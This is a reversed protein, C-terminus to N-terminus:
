RIKSIKRDTIKKSHDAFHLEIEELTRHETEPMILCMLVMGVGAMVFNFASIGALSLSVELDCYTKTTIFRFLYDLCASFGTAMGRVRMPYVESLLQWPLSNVGCHSCFSWMIILVLPIYTLQENEPRFTQSKDISNYGKPLVFFGYGSIIACCLLLVFLMTLYLPRKGTFRIVCLNTLNAFNMMIAIITLALDPAIPIDYAKFIPALYPHMGTIGTFEAFVFLSTVLFLPKLTPMRTLEFMKEKLTPLPHNCTENQEICHRCSKSRQSYRQLEQFEEAVDEKSTWGRLWTLAKEAAPLRNKTILWQPTEPM